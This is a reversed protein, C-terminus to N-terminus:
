ARKLGRGDAHDADGSGELREYIKGLIIAQGPKDLQDWLAGIELGEDSIGRIETSTEKKLDVGTLLYELTCGIFECIPVIYKAPPDPNRKKWNTLVTPAVGLYKALQEQKGRQDGLMEFLRECITMINGGFDVFSILM